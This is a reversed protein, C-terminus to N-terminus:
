RIGHHTRNYINIYKSLLSIVDQSNKVGYVIDNEVSDSQYRVRHDIKQHALKAGWGDVNEFSIILKFLSWALAMESLTGAGGGIVIVADSNVVIGNRMVDMGTPIIIDAYENAGKADFSPLIAITDGSSYSSSSRAGQLAFKMIGQLGGTQVRYGHDVLQKGVDYAILAKMSEDEVYGDGIVSIVKKM